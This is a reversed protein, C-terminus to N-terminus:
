QLLNIMKKESLTQTIQTKYFRADSFDHLYQTPEPLKVTKRNANLKNIRGSNTQMYSTSCWDLKKRKEGVHFVLRQMM